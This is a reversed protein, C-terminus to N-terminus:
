VLNVEVEFVVGAEVCREFWQLPWNDYFGHHYYKGRCYIPLKAGIIKSLRSWNKIQKGPKCKNKRPAKM